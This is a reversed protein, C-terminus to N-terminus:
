FLFSSVLLALLFGSGTAMANVDNNTIYKSGFLYYKVAGVIGSEERYQYAAGYVSDLLSGLFGAMTVVFFIKLANHPYFFATILGIIVSGMFAALTGRVSVGGDTGPSVKHGTTILYTRGEKHKIGLETSWTDATAVSLSSVAAIWFAMDKNIFWFCLGLALWFGNAWVQRASRRIGLTVRGEWHNKQTRRNEYRMREQSLMSGTIFFILLIIASEIGGFGYTIVGITGAAQAGDLSLWKLLFALFSLSVAFLIAWFIRIHEVANAELVFLAIIIFIFVYSLHRHM